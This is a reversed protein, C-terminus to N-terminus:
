WFLLYGMPTDAKKNPITPSEFFSIWSDPPCIAALAQGLQVMIKATLSFAIRTGGGVGCLFSRQRLLLVDAKLVEDDDTLLGELQLKVEFPAEVAVRLREHPGKQRGNASFWEGRGVNVSYQHDSQVIVQFAATDRRAAVLGSLAAPEEASWNLKLRYAEDTVKMFATM